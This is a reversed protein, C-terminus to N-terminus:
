EIAHTSVRLLTISAEEYGGGEEGGVLAMLVCQLQRAYAM